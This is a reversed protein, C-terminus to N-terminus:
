RLLFGGDVFLTTGTVYSSEDDLLFAVCRAVEEVEALRGLPIREPARERERDPTMETDAVGPGVANVRVGGGALELAFTRTLQALGGKTAAYPAQEPFAVETEVSTLNVIRGAIRRELWYRGFAQSFLFPGTLNTAVLRDFQEDTHEWVPGLRHAGANNVLGDVAGFAATARELVRDPLAPDAVDGPVALARGGDAELEGALADLEAATRSVLVVATGGAALLRAIGRGIGRGAGTVVVCRGGQRNV